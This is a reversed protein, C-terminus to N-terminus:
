DIPNEEPPEQHQAMQVEAAIMQGDAATFGTQEDIVDGTAYRGILLQFREMAANLEDNM